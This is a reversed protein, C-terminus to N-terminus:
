MRSCDCVPEALSEMPTVNTEVNAKYILKYHPAFPLLHVNFSAQM